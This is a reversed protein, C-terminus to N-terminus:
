EEANPHNEAVAEKLKQIAKADFGANEAESNKPGEVEKTSKALAESAKTQSQFLNNKHKESSEQISYMSNNINRQRSLQRQIQKRRYEEIM